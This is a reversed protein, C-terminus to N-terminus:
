NGGSRTGMLAHILGRRKCSGCKKGTKKEFLIRLDPLSMDPIAIKLKGGTRRGVTNTGISFAPPVPETETPIDERLNTRYVDSLIEETPNVTPELEIGMRENFGQCQPDTPNKLCWDTWNQNLEEKSLGKPNPDGPPNPDRGPTGPEYVGPIVEEGEVTMSGQFTTPTNWYQVGTVPDTMLVREGVKGEGYTYGELPEGERPDIQNLPSSKLGKRYFPTGKSSKRTIPVNVVEEEPVVNEVNEGAISYGEPMSGKDGLFYNEDGRRYAETNRWTLEGIDALDNRMRGPNGSVLGIGEVYSVMGQGGQMLDYIEQGTYQNEPVVLNTPDGTFEHEGSKENLSWGEGLNYMGQGAVGTSRGQRIIELNKPVGTSGHRTTKFQLGFLGRKGGTKHPNNYYRNGTFTSGPNFAGANYIQAIENAYDLNMDSATYKIGDDDKFKRNMKETFKDDGRLVKGQVATVKGSPLHRHAWRGGRQDVPDHKIPSTKRSLPNNQKYGM